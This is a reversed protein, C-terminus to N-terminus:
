IFDSFVKVATLLCDTLLRCGEGDGIYSSSYNVDVNNLERRSVNTQSLCGDEFERSTVEYKKSCSKRQKGSVLKWKSPAIDDEDFAFPDQSDDSIEVQILSTKCDSGWTAGSCSGFKSSNVRMNPSHNYTMSTSPTESVSLSSELWTCTLLQNTRSLNFSMVSYEREMDCYM